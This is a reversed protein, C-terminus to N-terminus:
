NVEWVHLYQILPMSKKNERLFILYLQGDDQFHSNLPLIIGSEHLYNRDLITETRLVLLFVKYLLPQMGM